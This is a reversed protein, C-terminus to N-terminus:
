WKRSMRERLRQATNRAVNSNFLYCTHGEVMAALLGTIIVLILVSIAALVEYCTILPSVQAVKRYVEFRRQRRQALPFTAVWLELAAFYWDHLLGVALGFLLYFVPVQTFLLSVDYVLITIVTQIFAMPLIFLYVVRVCKEAGMGLPQTKHFLSSALSLAPLLVTPWCVDIGSLFLYYWAFWIWFGYQICSALMDKVWVRSATMMDPAQRAKSGELAIIWHYLVWHQLTPADFVRPRVDDLFKNIDHSIDLATSFFHGLRRIDAMLTWLNPNPNYIAPSCMWFAACCILTWVIFISGGHTLYVTMVTLVRMGPLMNTHFHHIHLQLIPAYHNGIGRKTGMYSASGSFMAGGFFAASIRNQHAFFPMSMPLDLAQMYSYEM